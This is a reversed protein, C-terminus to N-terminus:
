KTRTSAMRKKEIRKLAGKYRNFLKLADQYDSSNHVRVRYVGPQRKVDYKVTFAGMDRFIVVAGYLSAYEEIKKLM